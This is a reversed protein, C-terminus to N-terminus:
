DESNEATSASLYLESVISSILVNPLRWLTCRPQLPRTEASIQRPRRAHTRSIPRYAEGGSQTSHACVTETANVMCEINFLM